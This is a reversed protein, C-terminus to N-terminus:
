PTKRVSGSQKTKELLLTQKPYWYKLHCTECAQDIRDGADLIGYVNKAEVAKLILATADYLSNSYKIWSERDSDIMTKIVEPPEEVRPDAAREGPHAVPRGPIQLMNMAEMLSVAHRRVEKWDEDTKPAKEVLGKISSDSSVADWIYDANPDVVSDMIDKVTADTRYKPEPGACGTTLLALGATFYFLFYTRM